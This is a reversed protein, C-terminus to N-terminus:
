FFTVDVMDTRLPWQHGSICQSSSSVSAWSPSHNPGFDGQLHSASHAEGSAKLDRQDLPARPSMHHRYWLKLRGLASLLLCQHPSRQVWDIM